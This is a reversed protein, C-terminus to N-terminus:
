LEYPKRRHIIHVLFQIESVVGAAFHDDFLITDGQGHSHFLVLYLKKYREKHSYSIWGTLKLSRASIPVGCFQPFLYHICTRIGLTEFGAEKQAAGAGAGAGTFM